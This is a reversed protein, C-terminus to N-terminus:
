QILGAQRLANQEIKQVKSALIKTWLATFDRQDSVSKNRPCEMFFENEGEWDIFVDELSKFADKFTQLNGYVRESIVLIKFRVTHTQASQGIYVLTGVVNKGVRIELTIFSHM